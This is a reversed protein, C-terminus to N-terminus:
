LALRLVAFVGTAAIAYSVCISGIILWKRMAGQTYDELMVQVGNKFHMMGLWITAGTILAPYPRAFHAIVEDYSKGLQPGFTFIFLPILILLGMSSVQMKWYHHTGEKASGLGAARKRDTMFAM